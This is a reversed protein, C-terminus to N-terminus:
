KDGSRQITKSSNFTGAARRRTSTGDVPHYPRARGALFEVPTTGLAECIRLLTLLQPTQAGSVLDQLSRRSVKTIRAFSALDDQAAMALYAAFSRQLNHQPVPGLNAQAFKFMEGVVSAVHRQRTVEANLTVPLTVPTSTAREAIAQGLWGGCKYCCGAYAHATLVPMSRGCHEYPCKERLPTAHRPCHTIAKLRWVLPEYVVKEAVRWEAFCHPCWARGRRLLGRCSIVNKWTYM